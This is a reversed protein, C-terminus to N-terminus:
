PRLDTEKFIFILSSVILFLAAILWGQLLGYSLALVCFIATLCASFSAQSTRSQIIAETRRIALILVMAGTLVGLAGLEVWLQLGANHPHLPLVQVTLGAGAPVDAKPCDAALDITAKRGPFVRSADLGWGLFPRRSINEDVFNWIALRHVASPSVNLLNCVLPGQLPRPFVLPIVLMLGILGGYIAHRLRPLMYVLGFALLGTAFALRAAMNDALWLAGMTTTAFVLAAMRQGSCVLACVLPVALIANISIGQSFGMSQRYFEKLSAADSVSLRLIGLYIAIAGGALAFGWALARLVRLRQDKDLHLAALVLSLGIALEAVLRIGRVLSLAPDVSWLASLIGLMGLALVYSHRRFFPRVSQDLSPRVAFLLLIALLPVVVQIANRALYLIPGAFFFLGYGTYLIGKTGASLGGSWKISHEGEKMLAAM